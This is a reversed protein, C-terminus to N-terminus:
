AGHERWKQFLLSGTYAIDYLGPYHTVILFNKSDKDKLGVM